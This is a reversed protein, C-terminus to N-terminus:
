CAYGSVQRQTLELACNAYVMVALYKTKLLINPKLDHFEHDLGDHDVKMTIGGGGTM